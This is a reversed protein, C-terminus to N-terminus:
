VPKIPLPWPHRIISSVSIAYDMREFNSRKFMPIQKLPEVAM